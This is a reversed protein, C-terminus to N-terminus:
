YDKLRDLLRRHESIVKRGEARVVYTDANARQYVSNSVGSTRCGVIRKPNGLSSGAKEYTRKM